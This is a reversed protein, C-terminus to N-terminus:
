CICTCSHIASCGRVNLLLAVVEELGAAALVEEHLQAVCLRLTPGNISVSVLDAARKKGTYAKYLAKWRAEASWPTEPCGPLVPRLAPPCTPQLATQRQM